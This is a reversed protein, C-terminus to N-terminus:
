MCSIDLGFLKGIVRILTPFMVVIILVVAIWICKKLAKNLEGADGKNVAPLLKVMAMVIAVIVGVIRLANIGFKVVLVLNNGLLNACTTPSSDFDFQPAESALINITDSANIELIVAFFSILAVLLISIKKM